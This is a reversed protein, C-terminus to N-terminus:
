LRAHLTLPLNETFPISLIVFGAPLAKCFEVYTTSRKRWCDTDRFVYQALTSEEVARFPGIENGSPSIVGVIAAILLAVYNGTSAFVAGSIAMMIAGLLLTRRRGLADAVLTLFLSVLVDGLLTLTMFLGIQEDSFGLAEFYIALILAVSGYAVLRLYRALILIYVDKGATRMTAIGLEDALWRTAKFFGDQLTM